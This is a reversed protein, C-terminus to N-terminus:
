GLMVHDPLGRGLPELVPGPEALFGAVQALLDAGPPGPQPDPAHRVVTEVGFPQEVGAPGLVGLFVDLEAAQRAPGHSGAPELDGGVKITLIQRDADVDELGGPGVVREGVLGPPPLRFFPALDGLGDALREPREPLDSMLVIDRIRQEALLHDLLDGLIALDVAGPGQRQDDHAATGDCLVDREVPQHDIAILEDQERSRCGKV